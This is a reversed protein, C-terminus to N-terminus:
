ANQQVGIKGCAYYRTYPYSPATCQYKDLDGNVFAAKWGAYDNPGPVFNPPIIFQQICATAGPWNNNDPEGIGWKFGEFGTTHGDTWQFTNYPGCSPSRCGPLNTAGLWLGAVTIGQNTIRTLAERAVTMRENDNQFGTLTAGLSQCASQAQDQSFYGNTVGSYGLYICWILGNPREFRMWGEDCQKRPPPPPRHPPRQGHHHHGHEESSSSSGSSSSSYSFGGGGGHHRGGGNGHGELFIAATFPVLFVLILLKM